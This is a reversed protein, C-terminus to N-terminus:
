SYAWPWVMFLCGPIALDYIRLDGFGQNIICTTFHQECHLDGVSEFQDHGVSANGWRVFHRGALHLIRRSSTPASIIQCDDRDGIGVAGEKIDDVKVEENSWECNTLVWDCDENHDVILTDSLWTDLGSPLFPLLKRLHFNFISDCHRKKNSCHVIFMSLQINFMSCQANFM